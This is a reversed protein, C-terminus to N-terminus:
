SNYSSNSSSDSSNSNRDYSNSNTLPTKRKKELNKKKKHDLQAELEKIKKILKKNEKNKDKLEKIKKEQEKFKIIKKEKVQQDYLDMQYYVEDQNYLIAIAEYIYNNKFFEKKLTPLAYYDNKYSKCWTSLTLYKIWEKTYDNLKENEETIWLDGNNSIIKKRCYDLDIQDM